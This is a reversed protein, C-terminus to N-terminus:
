PIKKVFVLPVGAREVVFVTPFEAFKEDANEATSVIIYDYKEWNRKRAGFANFILDPRAFTQASPKSNGVFINANPSGTQNVYSQAEKFALHWYDLGFGRYAGRVGGVIQNYYIYQYPYLTVNAYLGPLLILFLILFRTVPIRLCSLLRDLGLGAILFLTPLIFFVQRFNDYLNVRFSLIVAVPLLFWILILAFLDWRFKKLFSFAGVVIIILTTETLQV